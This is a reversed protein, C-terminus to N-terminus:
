LHGAHDLVDDSEDALVVDIRLGRRLHGICQRAAQGFCLLSQGVGEVRDLASLERGGGVIHM